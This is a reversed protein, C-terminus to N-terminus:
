SKFTGALETAWTGWQNQLETFTKQFQATFSSPDAGLKSIKDNVGGLERAYTTNRGTLLQKDTDGLGPSKILADNKAIIDTLITKEQTLLALKEKYKQATTKTYDGEIAAIRTNLDILENKLVVEQALMLDKASQTSVVTGNQSGGTSAGANSAANKKLQEDILANLRALADNKVNDGPSLPQNLGLATKSAQLQEDLWKSMGSFFPQGFSQMRSLSQQFTPAPTTDAKGPSLNKLTNGIGPIMSFVKNQQDIMWNYVDQFVAKIHTGLWDFGASMYIIPETFYSILMKASGVGFAMVASFLSTYIQGATESSLLKWQDLWLHKVADAGLEFGAEVLLSLMEPFKNDRFSNIIITVLAGFRQGMRTFDISDFIGQFETSIQAIPLEDLMGAAAEKFYYPIMRFQARLQEDTGANRQMVDGFTGGGQQLLRMADSNRFLALMQAGSRGFISMAIDARQADNAVANLAQGIKLLQQDATQGILQKPDLGLPAFMRQYTQPNIGAIPHVAESISRQMKTILMQAGEASGGIHQFALDIATLSKVSAGTIDSLRKLEAGMSIVSSLEATIGAFSIAGIIPAALSRLTSAFAKIESMAASAGSTAIKITLSSTENSM